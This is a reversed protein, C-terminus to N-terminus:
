IIEIADLPVYGTYGPAAPLDIRAWGEQLQIVRVKTGEHLTFHTSFDKGAGTKVDLASALVIAEQEYYLRHIKYGTSLIGLTLVIGTVGIWSRVIGAPKESCILIRVIVFFAFMWIIFLLLLLSERLNLYHHFGMFFGVTGSYVPQRFEEDVLTQRAYNLNYKLDGFRPLYRAAREYWLIAKGTNGLQFETNGLNYFLYGNAIGQETLFRYGVAAQELEGNTYLENAREFMSQRSAHAEYGEPIETQAACSLGGWGILYFCSIFGIIRQKM